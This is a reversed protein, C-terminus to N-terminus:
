NIHLTYACHKVLKPPLDGPVQSKPKRAKKIRKYVEEDEHTLIPALNSDAKLLYDQIKPQFNSLSVPEYEQSNSSFQAAIIEASQQASHNNQQHASLQFQDRTEDWPRLGIKKLTPYTSGRLGESVETAIKKELYKLMEIKLKEEYKSRM